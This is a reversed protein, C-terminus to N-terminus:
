NIFHHRFGAFVPQNSHAANVAVPGGRLHFAPFVHQVVVGDLGDLLKAVGDAFIRRVARQDDIGHVDEVLARHVTEAESGAVAVVCPQGSADALFAKKHHADPPFVRRGSEHFGALDEDVGLVQHRFFLDDFEHGVVFLYNDAGSGAINRAVRQGQQFVGEVQRLLLVTPCKQPCQASPQSLEVGAEIGAGVAEILKRLQHFRM